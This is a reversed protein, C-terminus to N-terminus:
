GGLDVIGLQTAGRQHVDDGFNLAWMNSLGPFHRLASKPIDFLLDGTASGGPAIATRWVVGRPDIDTDASYPYSAHGVTLVTQAYGDFQVPAHTTNQVRVTVVAYVGNAWARSSVGDVDNSFAHASSTRVVTLRLSDLVLTTRRAVVLGPMDAWTCRVPGPAGFTVRDVAIQCSETAAEGQSALGLAAVTAIAAVTVQRRSM